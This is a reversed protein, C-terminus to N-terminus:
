FIQRRRKGIQLGLGVRRKGDSHENDSPLDEYARHEQLPQGMSSNGAATTEWLASRRHCGCDREEGVSLGMGMGIDEVM